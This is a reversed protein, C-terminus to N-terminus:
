KGETHALYAAWAQREIELAAATAPSNEDALADVDRMAEILNDYADGGAPVAELAACFQQDSWEDPSRDVFNDFADGLVAGAAKSARRLREAFALTELLRRNEEERRHWNSSRTLVGSAYTM